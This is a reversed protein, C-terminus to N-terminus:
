QSEGSLRRYRGGHFVLPSSKRGQAFRLIRGVLVLHDGGPYHAEPACEFWALCGAILPVGALGPIFEVPAFPDDGRVSFHSSIWEQDEALVNVAYHQARCFAELSPSRNSLSWLILPPDLSVSSFSNITIGVARGDDACATVVTVGTAFTGLGDRLARCFRDDIAALDGDESMARSVGAPTAAVQATAPIRPPLPM